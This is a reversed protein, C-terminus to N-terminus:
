PKTQKTALQLALDRIALYDGKLTECLLDGLRDMVDYIILQRVEEETFGKLRLYALKDEELPAIASSHRATGAIGSEVDIKPVCIGVCRKGLPLVRGEVNLSANYASREAVGNKEIVLFSEDLVIGFSKSKGKADRGRCRVETVEHLRSKELSICLANRNLMANSGLVYYEEMHFMSSGKSIGIVAMNVCSNDDARISLLTYASDEAIFAAMVDMRSGDGAKSDITLSMCGSRVLGYLTIYAEVNREVDLVLHTPMLVGPNDYYFAMRLPRPPKEFIRVYICSLLNAFHRAQLRNSIRTSEEVRTRIFDREDIDGNALVEIGSIAKREALVGNVILIDPAIPIVVNVRPPIVIPDNYREYTNWDTYHRITPSDRLEQYPLADVLARARGKIRDVVNM